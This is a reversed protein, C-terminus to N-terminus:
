EVKFLKTVTQIMMASLNICNTGAVFMHWTIFELYM